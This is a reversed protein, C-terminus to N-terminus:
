RFPHDRHVSIRVKSGCNTGLALTSGVERAIQRCSSKSKRVLEVLEHKYEPSYGKRKSM